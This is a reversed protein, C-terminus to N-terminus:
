DNMLFSRKGNKLPEFRDVYEFKVDCNKGVYKKITAYLLEHESEVFTSKKVIQVVVSMDGNKRIRFADVNFGRFLSNFGSTTLRHGNSFEVVDSTRGVIEKMKGLASGFGTMAQSTSFVKSVKKGFTPVCGFTLALM